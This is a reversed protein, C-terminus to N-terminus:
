LCGVPPNFFCALFDFFDQSNVSGSINFDAAPAGAFFATLFDFYDQSNVQGSNDFDCPCASLHPMFDVNLSGEGGYGATWPFTGVRIIYSLGGFVGVSVSSSLQGCSPGAPTDDSCAVPAAGAPCASGAYVALVTDFNANCTDLQLVGMAPASFVFWVDKQILGPCPPAPEPDTTASCTSFGYSNGDSVTVPNACSDSTPPSAFDNVIEEGLQGPVVLAHVADHLQPEEAAQLHV